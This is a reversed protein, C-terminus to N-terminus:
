LVGSLTRLPALMCKEMTVLLNMETETKSFVSLDLFNKTDRSQFQM